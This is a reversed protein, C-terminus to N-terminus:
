CSISKSYVRSPETIIDISDTEREETPSLREEGSGIAALRKRLEALKKARVEPFPIQRREYIMECAIHVCLMRLFSELGPRGTTDFPVTYLRSLEGNVEDEVLRQVAAFADQTGDGTDDLGATVWQTPILATLDSQEFYAM